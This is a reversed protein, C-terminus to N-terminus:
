LRYFTSVPCIRNYMWFSMQNLMNNFKHHLVCVSGGMPSSACLQVPKLISVRFFMLFILFHKAHTVVNCSRKWFLPVVAHLSLFSSCNQFLPPTLKCSSFSCTLSMVSRCRANPRVILSRFLCEGIVLEPSHFSSLFQFFHNLVCLPSHWLSSRCNSRHVITVGLSLLSVLVITAACILFSCFLLADLSRTFSGVMCPLSQNSM